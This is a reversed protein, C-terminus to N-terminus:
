LVAQYHQRHLSPPPQTHQCTTLYKNCLFASVALGKAYKYSVGVFLIAYLASGCAADGEGRRDAIFLM